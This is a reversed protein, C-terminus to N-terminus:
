SGSGPDVPNEDPLNDPRSAGRWLQFAALDIEQEAFDVPPAESEEPNPLEVIEM